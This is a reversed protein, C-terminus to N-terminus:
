PSGCFHAVSREDVPTHADHLGGLAWYLVGPAHVAASAPDHEIYAVAITPLGASAAAVSHWVRGGASPSEVAVHVIQPVAMGGRRHTFERVGASFHYVNDPLEIHTPWADAEAQGPAWYVAINRERLRQFQKVLFCPGRPGTLSAALVDGALVLFDTKESLA